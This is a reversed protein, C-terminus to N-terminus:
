LIILANVSTTAKKAVNLVVEEVVLNTGVVETEMAEMAVVNTELALRSPIPM